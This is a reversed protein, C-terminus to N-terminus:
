PSITSQCEADIRTEEQLTGAKRHELTWLILHWMTRKGQLEPPSHPEPWQRQLSSASIQLHLHLPARKRSSQSNGSDPLMMTLIPSQQLAREPGARAEWLHFSLTPLQSLTGAESTKFTSSSLTAHTDGAQLFFHWCERCGSHTSKWDRTEVQPQPLKERQPWNPM